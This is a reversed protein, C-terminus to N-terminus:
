KRVGKGNLLAWIYEAQFVADDVANHHTGAREVEYYGALDNLTRIDRQMKYSTINHLNRGIAKCANGVIPADFTAHTWCPIERGGIVSVWDTLKEIATKLPVPRPDFLALRAEDSQKMWWELTSGDITLGLNLCDQANVNIYFKQCATADFHLWDRRFAACGIAVIVSTATTGFTELDLTYDTFRMM